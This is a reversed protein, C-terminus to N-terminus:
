RTKIGASISKCTDIRPVQGTAKLLEGQPVNFRAAFDHRIVKALERGL